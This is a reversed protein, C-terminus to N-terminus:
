TSGSTHELGDQSLGEGARPERVRRGFAKSAREPDKTGGPPGMRGGAVTPGPTGPV